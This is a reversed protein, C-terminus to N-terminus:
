CAARRAALPLRIAVEAGGSKLNALVISGGAAEVVAKALALGLGSGEGSTRAPNARWFRDLAHELGEPSFGPGDDVIAVEARDDRQAVTVTVSGGDRAFKLANHVISLVARELSAAAAS